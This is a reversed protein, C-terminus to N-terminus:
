FRTGQSEMHSIMEALATKLPYIPDWSFTKRVLSVDVSCNQVDNLRPNTDIVVSLENNTLARVINAVELNSYSQGYGVNYIGNQVPKKEVIKGVLTVFDKIYLYDRVPIPDRLVFTTKDRVSKLLDPILRGPIHNDGYINFGRLIVLSHKNFEKFHCCLNEGLVKSGMYPNIVSVPHKEDIPTYLPQGYVYSSMYLFDAKCRKAIHLAALTSMLNNAYIFCPDDISDSISTKAAFHLIWDLKVDNEDEDPLTMHSVYNRTFDDLVIMEHGADSLKQHVARGIFGKHGTIGIKM